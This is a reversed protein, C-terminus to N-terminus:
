LENDYELSQLLDLNQIYPITSPKCGLGIRYAFNPIFEVNYKQAVYDHLQEEIIIYKSTDDYAHIVYIFKKIDDILDRKSRFLM